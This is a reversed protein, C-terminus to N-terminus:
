HGTRMIYNRTRQPALWIYSKTVDSGPLQNKDSMFTGSFEMKFKRNISTNSVHFHVSGKQNFFDGPFVTTERQFTTSLLYQLTTNGGSLAASVNTFKATNGILVDQWNTYRNTDWLVLDPANDISPTIGDNKFAENRMELYQKTNLMDIKHNVKGTGMQANIDLTTKGAKGRKTTILIAGNAARSGYIATADADKLVDIREIDSPNILSLANGSGVNTGFATGGSNGLPGLGNAPPLESPYPIGDIVFLPTNGNLISNQGQIRVTIGAGPLGNAQSITMGPVGGQLALLPNNVPQKEIDKAKVTAVNGTQFRPSSTGYAIIQVEDLKSTSIELGVIMTNEGSVKVEKTMYGINSIVLTKGQEAEISFRGYADTVVGRKTGKVVVNVGALPQGDPGRVVGTVPPTTLLPTLPSFYVGSSKKRIIITTNEIAYDLKQNAFVKNLFVKM